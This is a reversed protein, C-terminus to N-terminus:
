SELPQWLKAGGTRAGAKGAVHIVTNQLRDGVKEVKRVYVNQIPNGFDDFRRACTTAVVATAKPDRRLM